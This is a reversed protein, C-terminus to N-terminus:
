ILNHKLEKYNFIACVKFKIHALYSNPKHSLNENNELQSHM